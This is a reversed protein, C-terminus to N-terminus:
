SRTVNDVSPNGDSALLARIVMERTIRDNEFHANGFAFSIEQEVREQESMQYHRAKEILRKLRESM